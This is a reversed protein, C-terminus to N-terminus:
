NTRASKNDAEEYAEPIKEWDVPVKFGHDLIGRVYADSCFHEVWFDVRKHIKVIPQGKQGMPEAASTRTTSTRRRTAQRASEQWFRLLPPM